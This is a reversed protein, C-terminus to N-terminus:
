SGPEGEVEEADDAYLDDDEDFIVHPTVIIILDQHLEAAQKTRFLSGLLPLDKLLPIGAVSQSREVVTLGGIVISENNHVVVETRTSQRGGTITQGDPALTGGERSINLNMRVRGNPLVYPTVRLTTGTEFSGWGQHQNGGPHGYPNRYFNGYPSGYPTGQAYPNGYPNNAGVNQGPMQGPPMGAQWGPLPYQGPLQSMPPAEGGMATFVPQPNPLIFFEGVEISAELDSTTTIVPASQVEALGTGQLVDFFINLSVSSSLALNHMLSFTSNQNQGPNPMGPIGGHYPNIPRLQVVPEASQKEDDDGDGNGGSPASPLMNKPIIQYTFGIRELSSRNVFVMKAEITVTPRKRDIREVMQRVKHLKEPSTYLMLMNSREAGTRVTNIVDTSGSQGAGVITRLTEIIDDAYVYKLRIIEPDREQMARAETQVVIIGTSPDQVARLGHARLITELAIHWHQGQIDGTITKSRVEQEDSTLISTGAFESFLTLVDALPDDLFSVSVVRPNEVQFIWRGEPITDKPEANTDGRAPSSSAVEESAALEETLTDSPPRSPKQVLGDSAGDGSALRAQLEDLTILAPGEQPAPSASGSFPSLSCASLLTTM